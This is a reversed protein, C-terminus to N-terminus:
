TPLAPSLGKGGEREKVVAEVHPCDASEPASAVIM